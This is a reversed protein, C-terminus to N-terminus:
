AFYAEFEEKTLEEKKLLDESIKEHLEKNDLILQKTRAYARSLIEKVKRDIIEQTKESFPKSNWEAWLYNWEVRDPAFNEAWVEEDMGFRTVMDRAIKTAREIDNSAWTTIFDKGFFIEESVRGGYLTALEDLYKAKSVLVKDKEPLFWTVWLAWGRPLISVKHVPDTNECLRWVLAHGVEHYATIKKEKDDMVLSKKHLGM